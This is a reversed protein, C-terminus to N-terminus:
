LSLHDGLELVPSLPTGGSTTLPTGGSTSIQEDHRSSLLHKDIDLMHRDVELMRRDVDVIHKDFLDLRQRIIKELGSVQFHTNQAMTELTSIDVMKASGQLRICGNIFVELDLKGAQRTDLLLFIKRLSTMDLDLAMFYAKMGEDCLREQFQDWSVELVRTENGDEGHPELSEIGAELFIDVMESIMNERKRMAADIALQRNMASSQLAVNVFIGNLINLVVFLAFSIYLLFALTYLFGMQTLTEAPGAWDYGGTVAAFLTWITDEISGYKDKVESVFNNTTPNKLDDSNMDLLHNLIGGMFVLSAVYMISLLLLVASIFSTSTGGISYLMTKMSQIFPSHSAVRLVRLIRVIRIVRLFSLRLGINIDVFQTMLDLISFVVVVFDFGNWKNEKGTIFELRDSMMRCVLEFSFFICFFADGYRWKTTDDIDRGDLRQFEASVMVNTTIGIYV